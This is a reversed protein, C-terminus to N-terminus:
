LENWSNEVTQRVRKSYQGRHDRYLNAAEV